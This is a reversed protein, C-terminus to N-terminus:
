NYARLQAEGHYVQGAAIAELTEARVASRTRPEGTDGVFRTVEGSILTGAARATDVQARVEARTLTSKGHDPFVTAESAVAAISSLAFSLAIILSKM